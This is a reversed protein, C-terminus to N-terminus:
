PREAPARSGVSSIESPPPRDPTPRGGKKELLVVIVLALPEPISGLAECSMMIEIVIELAGDDLDGFDRPNLRDAGQGTTRRFRRAAARAERATPRPLAPLVGWSPLPEGTGTPAWLPQWKEREKAVLVDPNTTTVEMGNVEVKATEPRWGEPVQSWRHARSAGNAEAERCWEAISRRVENMSANERDDAARMAEDHLQQVESRAKGLAARGAELDGCSGRCTREIGRAVTKLKAALGNSVTDRPAARAVHHGAHIAARAREATEIALHPGTSKGLAIGLEHARDQALRLRRNEAGAAAHQGHRATGLIPERAFTPGKARGRYPAAGGEQEDLHYEYILEDEIYGLWSVVADDRAAIADETRGLLGLQTAARAKVLVTSADQPAKRPGVPKAVPMKRPAKMVTVEFSRPKAPAIFGVASHTRIPATGDVHASLGVRALSKSVVFDDTLRGAKGRKATTHSVPPVIVVGGVQDPWGSAILVEPTVNWDGCAAWPRGHGSAHQAIRTLTCWSGPGLEEGCELYM